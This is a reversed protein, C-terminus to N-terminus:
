ERMYKMKETFSHLSENSKGAQNVMQLKINNEISQMMLQEATNIKGSVVDYFNNDYLKKIAETVQSYEYTKTPQKANFTESPNSITSVNSNIIVEKGKFMEQFINAIDEKVLNIKDSDYKDISKRREKARRISDQQTKYIYTNKNNRAM